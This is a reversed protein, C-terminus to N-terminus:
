KKISLNSHWVVCSQEEVSRIYVKYIHLKDQISKTFTSTKRLLEMRAYARKVLFKTNKNWKLTDTVITGLLKIEKVTEIKSNKLTMRTSFQKTKTFNFVMCKTKETNLEMKQKETWNQIENLHVQSKLNEPPIIQNNSNIDNPVQNKVNHSAMGVMLLNIKELITLDDVFKFKSDNNVNKASKNSQALYEM